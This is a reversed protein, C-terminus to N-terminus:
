TMCSWADSDSASSLISGSGARIPRSMPRRRLFPHRVPMSAAFSTPTARPTRHRVRRGIGGFPPRRGADRLHDQHRGRGGRGPPHVDLRRGGPPGARAIASRAGRWARRLFQHPLGAPTHGLVEARLQVTLAGLFELDIRSARRAPPTTLPSSRHPRRKRQRGSRLGRDGIELRRRRAGYRHAPWRALAGCSLRPTTRSGLAPLRAVFTQLAAGASEAPAARVVRIPGGDVRCPVAVVNSPHGPAATLALIPPIGVPCSAPRPQFPPRESACCVPSGLFLPERSM